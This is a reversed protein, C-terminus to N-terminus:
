LFGGSVSAANNTSVGDVLTNLTTTSGAALQALLRAALEVCQQRSSATSGAAPLAAQQLAAQQLAAQQQCHWEQLQWSLAKSGAAPLAAQQLAAQQLAAQQQCQWEQLQWSLARSSWCQCCRGCAARL